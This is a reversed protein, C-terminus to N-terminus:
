KRDLRGEIRALKERTDGIEQLALDIKQEMRIRWADNAEIRREQATPGSVGATAVAPESGQAPSSRIGLAVVLPIGVGLGAFLASAWWPRRSPKDTSIPETM